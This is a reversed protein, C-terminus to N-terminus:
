KRLYNPLYTIPTNGKESEKLHLLASYVGPYFPCRMPDALTLNM